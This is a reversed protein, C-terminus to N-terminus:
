QIGQEKFRERLARVLALMGNAADQMGDILTAFNLSDRLIGDDYLESVGIQFYRDFDGAKNWPSVRYNKSIFSILKLMTKLELNEKEIIVEIKNFLMLVSADKNENYYEDIRKINNTGVIPTINQEEFKERLIRVLALGANAWEQLEDIHMTFSKHGRKQIVKYIRHANIQINANFNGDDDWPSDEGYSCIRSILWIIDELIRNEDSIMLDIKKITLFTSDYKFENYYEDIRM